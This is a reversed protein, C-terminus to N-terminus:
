PERHVPEQGSSIPSQLCSSSMDSRPLTNPAACEPVSGTSDAPLQTHRQGLLLAQQAQWQWQSPGLRGLSGRLLGLCVSPNM